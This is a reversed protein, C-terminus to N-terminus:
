EASYVIWPAWYRPDDCIIDRKANLQKGTKDFRHIRGQKRFEVVTEKWIEDISVHLNMEFYKKYFISFLMSTAQDDTEELPAIVAIAGSQLMAKIFGSLSEKVNDSMKGGYCLSFVALNTKGALGVLEDEYLRNNKEEGALVMFLRGEEDIGHTSFHIVDFNNDALNEIVQLKTANNYALCIPRKGSIENRMAECEVESYRLKDYRKFEVPYVVLSNDFKEKRRPNILDFVNAVNRVTFYDMVYGNKYPLAGFCINNFIGESSFILQKIGKQELSTLLKSTIVGLKKKAEDFTLESKAKERDPFIGDLYVEICESTENRRSFDDIYLLEGSSDAIFVNIFYEDSNWLQKRQYYLDIFVGDAPINAVIGIRDFRSEISEKVRAVAIAKKNKTLYSIVYRLMKAKAINIYVDWRSDEDKIRTYATLIMAMMKEYTDSLSSVEEGELMYILRIENSSLHCLYLKYCAMALTKTLSPLANYYRRYLAAITQTILECHVDLQQPSEIDNILNELLNVVFDLYDGEYDTSILRHYICNVYTSVVMGAYTSKVYEDESTAYTPYLQKSETLLNEFIETVDSSPVEWDQPVLHFNTALEKQSYTTLQEAIAVALGSLEDFARKQEDTIISEPDPASFGDLDDEISSVVEVLDSEFILIELVKDFFKIAEKLNPYELPAPFSLPRYTDLKTYGYMAYAVAEIQSQVAYDKTSKHILNMKKCLLLLADYTNGENQFAGFCVISAYSALIENFKECYDSDTFIKELDQTKSFFEMMNQIIRIPDASLFYKDPWYKELLRWAVDIARLDDESLYHEFADYFIREDYNAQRIHSITANKYDWDQLSM